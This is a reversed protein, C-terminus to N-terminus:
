GREGKTYKDIIQLCDIYTGDILPSRNSRRKRQEEIEQRIKEIVNREILEPNRKVTYYDDM